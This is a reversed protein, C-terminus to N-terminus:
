AIQGIKYANRGSAAAEVKLYKVADDLDSLFIHDTSANGATLTISAVNSKVKGDAMQVEAVKLANGRADYFSVKTKGTVVDLSFSDINALNYCDLLDGGASKTLTGSFEVGEALLEAGKWNNNSLNFVANEKMVLKYDSNKAKKAGTATVELYYTKSSSLCLNSLSVAPKKASATVSKVKSLKGNKLAYVTLKVNDTAGTLDFSYFGGNSDIALARYDVADGYGVWADVSEGSSLKPAKKWNNDSTDGRLFLETSKLSLSYASASEGNDTNTVVITYKNAPDLLVSKGKNFNLTGAKVTGSAVKTKGNYIAVKGEMIGFNGTMIYRGACDLAPVYANQYISDYGISGTYSFTGQSINAVQYGTVASVNGAADIGRFYVTGNATMVVGSTYTKWAKGDLSYEKNASDSSFSATVTVSKSTSGTIDASATPKAPPVKDINAVDYSAVDSINGAEDIGRFYVTGNATMVASSDCGTWNVCDKSYEVKDIKGNFTATITVNRNTPATIDATLVPKDPTVKCINDVTYSAVDSINGAADIGRFYVTGNATMVVGTTYANWTTNDTSYQKQATDSSFTATVTVNRNTPVTIDAAASPKEPAVRDINTVQYGAEASNGAADTGRFYVTGNATMEVGTTYITWAKGDLSYEQKVSDSSFTATVKVNGSTPQTIDATATPKDPAVKDINDVTYSAVESVNGVTDTARFWVTGNDSFVIGMRYKQWTEGDLSYEMVASDSSFEATVTVSKNTPDTTSPVATPMAPPVKDINTVEYAVPVSVNGVADAARFWVTGNDTMVVGNDYVTWSEGDLSYEKTVTDSSFIATVTVNGNTPKTIDASAVPSEPAVKDINTVEYSAAESINGAADVGRFWVKGNDTMVVGSASYEQWTKYDLSYEKRASDTSFDATVTVQGNTPTTVDATVNKPQEPPIRDINSVEYVATESVNGAVDSARFYVKGNASRVVGGDTPYAKWAKGDLSYEKVVSDESFEATVTVDKNTPEIIDASAVPATPATTDINTVEYEVSDSVNGAADTGRFLVTGNATMVVGDETYAQWNEGDTSYEKTESDASFTATVTVPQNTETTVDASAVPADPADKDIKTVEVAQLKVNGVNDVAKFYVTKNETVTLASEYDFWASQDYSYQRSAIGSGNDGDSFTATLVVDSNTWETPNGTVNIAPLEKDINTVEFEAEVSVNGAADTERFYVTGNSTVTVGGDSYEYWTKRNLSYEKVTNEEGSFTATVTVNGNTWETIDAVINVPATPATKDINTVEYVVPESVNGLADTARFWVTGNDTMVVGDATYEQWTEGDLSYEKVESDASFEATVTVPKNTAATIDASAVPLEPPVKDINTVEFKVPKTVNGLEDAARFWVTGNDTMEVGADTYTQWTDGGDTSYQKTVSDESFVATVTVIGATPETIDAEPVPKVPATKDINSVQYTTIPSVNGIADTGRFYVAGNNKMVVGATYEVWTNGNLSYEKVVSDASFTATVTVNGATPETIDAVAVPADVDIRDINTVEYSSAVSVNGVADTGRFWVTGNDTVVVGDAPYPQWTEGDLSYEKVESDESFVATVTVNGATPETIDAVIDYPADPAIKDINTVEYAVPECVNGLEDAARFWVTGNDTMVVGDATYALWTTDEDPATDGIYYEKVASDASFTATVTVNGNTPATIDATAVPLEPASKDINTVEYYAVSIGGLVDTSRFGVAGNTEAVVGGDPYEYWTVGDLTYENKVSAPDFTATVTVNGNTPETIDAAAVPAALAAVINEVAYSVVDSINGADDIGRFYVTGNASRVVGDAYTQWTVGDLSYEKTVSDESFEATVTVPQSTPGTIDASAVPSEPPVKDINTVEYPVPESINGLADTARFWVTGNDTMLVGADTYAQWTEGDLSYEKVESDASFVATVTVNGNTPATIDATAEPAVPAEHDINTVEYKVPRTVNGLADAARFWVTGNETMEVGADTYDQWTEGDLSYEKTASDESFEATVTVIGATPETIDASAEPLEPATKDINAVDYSTVASHNGAVDTGRFYVMTNSTLVVGDDTYEYWINGNLSYEKTVSDASFEAKLTVDGNTPETDSIYSIVPADVVVRYINTVEYDAADSINGAADIGRFYVTTNDTVVVGAIPYESWTTGDLSYEKTVSDESFTATVTVNGSTPETIDATAVPVEPPVRDINAVEYAVPECTNGLADSARFWVTGNDTVLVGDDTYVQWTEGDRSYEKVESDASFEATVTVNGNTPATIDATAVPLEPALKDINTVEYAVVASINGVADISRFLVTGNTEMVVGAATYAQWYVGDVSYENVINAEDSFTATVTVNGATPETIDAVINTPAIPAVLDINSVEFADTVDSVNGAADIGRFWVKGNATMVVGDAPYDLWVANAEPATNGIYYQKVASDASFEATVTVNGNTPATIDAVINTPADPAVKDINTVEYEVPDSLNGLADAARFWVTGNDTMEVGAVPYTQWTEGDLSYEKVESDASFTATVTVNGNTLETIDATAVPAEPAVRDINAVEYSELNSVNGAADTGRFWVTGNDDLVVGADPYTQWTEGDLSYEKTVSDASFTATVTVNGTTPETIDASAVPKDPRIKDINVVYYSTVGSINGAADIGRFYVTTNDTVVVGDTPYEFWTTGNLSYEKTATDNSFVATVTVNGNTLTTIDAVINTPADPAVRDINTVTYSTEDTVASSGAPNTGRFYVTTNNAMVVVGDAPYAYWTVGDLSYERTLSDEGFEATVTVNGNTPDTVDAVINTPAAPVATYINTVEYAIPECTNGVVDASRFWVTGNANLAVGADTYAQWTEGDLSYEKTVSDASFTATVTVNGATPETIDAVAVPAEPAVRDINTVKYSAVASTNGVDDIGRFYVTGNDTMVVGADPYVVWVISNFSYEKVVSGASFTATVTVNGATPDTIDAVAVPADPADTDINTVEFVDTVASVNGAADTGRFVVTGNATMVVGDAPYEHWTTGGDLSYEKVESDASFVATVTVNGNTTVSNPIDAVINTPADPAVRDINVVEYEVPDCTNGLADSARFWVTGNDTMLVGDDTYAQWTTGDLSYEKVESDAAFEATVTVNGNTPVTIDATAVPLEPALKDINTVEYYAVSIGGLADTSRFGVAGNSEVVVGGAPYEYWTMGDLSYENKVSAPDFTATVTVNGNTPETIDAATVPATLGAVINGVVYCEVDSINGAADIGRFYVTVNTTVEVGAATYDSWITNDDPVANGIFYQKVASDTSFEATVTVHGNTQETIDASAVPAIPAVLDINTVEYEVPDGVNGAADTGRFMVTGNDTMVVGTSSDYEEWTAGGDLSYEKVESDASFTATVTVNGNTPATIDATAVPAEPAVRDINAVEYSEPNSVNGAADTGRFWVTGNDELVVGADTYTQWTEGDLSYEKTVSDASFTATVTVNGATPETIDASAVPKDPRIKDINMVEYSTAGSINGAADTGRFYVTGNDTMLVGDTPYELWSTGNLSYEKTVSDDSFVATVTVNGNTLTTIDAAIDHPSAPAERDINTVEYSTEDTVASSGAPNTGRFYVTTNNAMVVVGGAPYAYWTVGDLSYERTLSDEGFEATVTVNGNTPDTVDAVINTPAAPVATYINTVEYAIPECTNGVVDASRFWVTGNATLAVGADTYAQWTEGDLSYEKTVSDASFEATLTVTGATPETIDASVVPLEPAVRDINTVKYSAVASTNGVDDIGRFYVTGNETMVVGAAPYEFWVVGNRSYEKVVSGASFTATVTVNGATPDTIDAVALPADPADKDINTVEFEATVASVNGAADTGRFVVTGNSTMVVGDAPYEHWTTGGDLSYEKLESDASFVATVTVNGNTTVSNPIDAVINTPAEPAERDINTVEYSV